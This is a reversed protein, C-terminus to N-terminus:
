LLYASAARVRVRADPDELAAVLGAAAAKHEGQLEGLVSAARVRVAAGRDKLAGIWDAVRKGEGLPEKKEQAAVEQGRGWSLLAIGLFLILFSRPKMTGEVEAQPPGAPESTVARKERGCGTTPGSRFLGVNLRSACDESRLTKASG